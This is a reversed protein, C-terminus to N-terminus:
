AKRSRSSSGTACRSAIARGTTSTSTVSLPNLTQYDTDTAISPSAMVYRSNFINLGKNEMAGFNFDDTAVIMFRDLDLELGWREEDWAIAKKLSELAHESNPYNKRGDM